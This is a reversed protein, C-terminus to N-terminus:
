EYIEDWELNRDAIGDRCLRELAVESNFKVNEAVPLEFEEIERAIEHSTNFWQQHWYQLHAKMEEENLIFEANSKKFDTVFVECVDYDEANTYTNDSTIVKPISTYGKAQNIWYDSSNPTIGIFINSNNKLKEINCGQGAIVFVNDTCYTDIDTYYIRNTYYKQDWSLSALKYIERLGTLNKALITIEPAGYRIKSNEPVIDLTLGFIPKKNAKKCAKYFKVYGWTGNDTIAVSHGECADVVKEVHGYAKRLSFETKVKLQIM